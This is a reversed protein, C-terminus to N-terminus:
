VTVLIIDAASTIAPDDSLVLQSAAIDRAFGDFSTLHLGHAQLESIVRSRGLFTVRHGAAALMGGVFCGINGAGAICISSNSSMLIGMM